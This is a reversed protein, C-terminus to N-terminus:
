AVESIIIRLLNRQTMNSIEFSVGIATPTRHAIRGKIHCTRELSQSFLTLRIEQQVAVPESTEILAGGLSIDRITGSYTWQDVEFDTSLECPYRKHRRREHHQTGEVEDKLRGGELLLSMLPTNITREQGPDGYEVSILPDSWSLIALVADKGNMSGADAAILMGTDFYFRGNRLASMITLTCSRGELEIMQLFSALGIGRLQGGYDMELDALLSNLLQNTDLPAELHIKVDCAKVLKRLKPSADGIPILQTRPRERLHQALSKIEGETLREGTIIVDIRIRELTDIAEVMGRVTLVKIFAQLHSLLQVFNDRIHPKAEILLLTKM